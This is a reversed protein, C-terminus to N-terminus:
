EQQFKYKLKGLDEMELHSNDNLITNYHGKVLRMEAKLKSLRKHVLCQLGKQADESLDVLSSNSSLAGLTLYQTKLAIWHQLMEKCLIVEEEKLRQVAMFKDFVMRKTHLNESRWPWTDTQIIGDTSVIQGSPEALHNYEAIAAALRKKDKLIVRRINHRRKNSDTQKYLNLSRVKVLVALEEIRAQLAGLSGDSQDTEEAWKQVDAVWLQVTDDDIGLEKKAANLSDLDEKLIRVTKLYRQSLTHSLNELKRENWGLALLTLMDKRGAKSMYKTTIAARSLFSNVQEVEEGITSGAGEQFAGGWKIECKGSHAKAHMVSLFPRMSLLNRHEPCQQVVHKTQTHIYEVFKAVEEDNQIFVDDFHGPEQTSSNSKFRYLKRNGDVSVALM